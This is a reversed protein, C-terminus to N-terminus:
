SRKLKHLALAAAVHYPSRGKLRERLDREEDPTLVRKRVFYDFRQMTQRNSSDHVPQVDSFDQRLYTVDIRVLLLRQSPPGSRGYYSVSPLPPPIEATLTEGSAKGKVAPAHCLLCNSHHNIRVVERVVTVKREGDSEVKPGRPDPGDLVAELQPMLDKRKLKVIARAANRAAAPWPYNLGAVLVNTSERAPRKALADLAVSRISDDSSFVAIRALERTASAGNISALEAVFRLQGGTAEAPLVQAMLAAHARDYHPQEKEDAKSRVDLARESSRVVPALSEFALAHVGKKRCANGLRFPLGSLDPRTRLLAKVFGDEEKDNLALAAVSTRAKHREWQQTTLTGTGKLEEALPAELKLEPVRELDEGLYVPVDKVPPPPPLLEDLPSKPGITPLSTPTPESEDPLPGPMRSPQPDPTATEIAESVTQAPLVTVVQENLECGVPPPLLAFWIAGVAAHCTVLAAFILLVRGPRTAGLM